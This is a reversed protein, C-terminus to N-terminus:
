RRIEHLNILEKNASYTNMNRHQYIGNIMKIFLSHHSTTIVNESYIIFLTYTSGSFKVIMSRNISTKNYLCQNEFYFSDDHIRRTM